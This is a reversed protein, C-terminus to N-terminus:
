SIFGAARLISLIALIHVIFLIVIFIRFKKPLVKYPGCLIFNGFHFGCAVLIANVALVAFLRM